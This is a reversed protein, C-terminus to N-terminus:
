TLRIFDKKTISRSQQCVEFGNSSGNHDSNGEITTFTDNVGDFCFGTHTWDTSTRRVLFIQCAGLTPWPPPSTGGPVFRKAAKAQAALSDCSVSGPIPTAAGILSCAQKMVFTVFAACWLWDKGDNGGTYARVWPGANPGGLEIPHTLLHQRAIHLIAADVTTGPPVGVAMLQSLPATLGDWTALDVVGSAPLGKARQFNEFSVRTANGFDSDIATQFGHFCLWEQVRKAKMKSAGAAVPGPFALEAKTASTSYAM